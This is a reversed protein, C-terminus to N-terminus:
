AATRLTVSSTYTLTRQPRNKTTVTLSIRVTHVQNTLSMNTIQAGNSDFYTFVGTSTVSGLVTTWDPLPQISWPPGDTDSSVAMRRQLNGGSVQYAIRRVPFPNGNGASLFQISSESMSEIPGLASDGTYAQRLERSLREVAARAETQLSSAESLRADHTIASSVVASFLAAMIGILGMAVLLEVLTFGDRRRIVALRTRIM